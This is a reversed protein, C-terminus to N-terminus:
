RAGQTSRQESAPLLAAAIGNLSKSFFTSETSVFDAELRSSVLLEHSFTDNM